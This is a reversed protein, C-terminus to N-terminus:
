LYDKQPGQKVARADPGDLAVGMAGAPTFNWGKNTWVVTDKVAKAPTQMYGVALHEESDKRLVYGDLNNSFKIWDGEKVKPPKRM